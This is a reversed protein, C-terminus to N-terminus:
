TCMRTVLTCPLGYHGSLRLAKSPCARIFIVPRFFRNLHNIELWEQWLIRHRIYIYIYIHMHTYTHTHTYIYIYKYVCVCVCVCVCVYVLTSFYM